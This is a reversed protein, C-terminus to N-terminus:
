VFHLIVLLVPCFIFRNNLTQNKDKSKIPGSHKEIGKYHMRHIYPKKEYMM